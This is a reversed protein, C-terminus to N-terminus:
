AVGQKPGDKPDSFQFVWRRRMLLGSLIPLRGKTPVLVGTLSLVDEFAHNSVPHVWSDM